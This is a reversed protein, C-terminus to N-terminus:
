QRLSGTSIRHFSRWIDVTPVKLSNVFTRTGPRSMLGIVGDGGVGRSDARTPVYPHEPDVRPAQSYAAIGHHLESDYWDLALLIRKRNM